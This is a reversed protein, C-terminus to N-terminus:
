RGVERIILTSEVDPQRISCPFHECYELLTDRAKRIANFRAEAEPAPDRDPHYIRAMRKYVAKVESISAQEGLGLTRRAEDLAQYDLKEIQIDVFNYPPLPSVILFTLKGEHTRELEDVKKYFDQEHEHDLLFSANLLMDDGRIKNENYGSTLGKLQTHVRPLLKKEREALAAKVRRGLEIKLKQDAPSEKIREVLAQIDGDDRLVETLLRKDWSFKVDAQIKGKLRELANRFVVYGQRLINEVGADDEVSLGFGMPLVTGRSMLTRLVREHTRADDLTVERDEPLPTVIASIDKFPITAVEKRSLGIDGFSCNESGALIGYIYKM